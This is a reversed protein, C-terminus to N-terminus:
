RIASVSPCVLALRWLQASTPFSPRIQVPQVRARLLFCIFPADCFKRAIRNEPKGYIATPLHCCTEWKEPCAWHLEGLRKGRYLVHLTKM